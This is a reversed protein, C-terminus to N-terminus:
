QCQTVQCDIVSWIDDTYKVTIINEVCSGYNISLGEFYFTFECSENSASITKSASIQMTKLAREKAFDFASNESCSVKQNAKKNSCSTFSMVNICLLIFIIKKMNIQNVYLLFAHSLQWESNLDSWSGTFWTFCRERM